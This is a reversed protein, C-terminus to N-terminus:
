SKTIQFLTWIYGLREAQSEHYTMRNERLWIRIPDIDAFSGWPFFISGEPLLHELAEPIFRFLVNKSAGGVESWLEDLIPLNAFIYDFKEPINQFLDSARIDVSAQPSLQEVNKRANHIADLSIDSAIIKKAGRQTLAITLIGSGCGIDAVTKGRVDPLSELLMGTSHTLEPDPSFVGQDVQLRIGGLTVEYDEHDLLRKFKEDM